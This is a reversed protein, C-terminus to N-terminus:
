FHEFGKPLKGTNLRTSKAWELQQEYIDGYENGICSVPNLGVSEVLPIAQPRAERMKKKFAEVVMQYHGQKFYGSEFLAMSDLHLQELGFIALM